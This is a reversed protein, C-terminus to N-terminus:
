RDTCRGERLENEAEEVLWDLKGSQVDAEFQRDWAQADREVFWARLVAQEEVSLRLIAEEIELLTSM